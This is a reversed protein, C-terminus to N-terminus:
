GGQLLKSQNFTTSAISSIFQHIKKKKDICIYTGLQNKQLVKNYFLFGFVTFCMMTYFKIVDWQIHELTSAVLFCSNFQLLCAPSM